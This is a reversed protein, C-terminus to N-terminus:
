FYFREVKLKVKFISNHRRIMVYCLDPNYWQMVPFLMEKNM